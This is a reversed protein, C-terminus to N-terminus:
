NYYHLNIDLKAFLYNPFLPKIKQVM